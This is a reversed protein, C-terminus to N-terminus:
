RTHKIIRISLHFMRLRWNLVSINLLVHLDSIILVRLLRASEPQINNSDSIPLIMWINIIEFDFYFWRLLPSKFDFDNQFHHNSFWFWM